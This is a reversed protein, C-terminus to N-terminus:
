EFDGDIENEAAVEEVEEDSSFEESSVSESGGENSSYEEPEDQEFHPMIPTFTCSWNVSTTPTQLWFPYIKRLGDLFASGFLSPEEEEM